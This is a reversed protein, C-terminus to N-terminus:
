RTSKRDRQRIYKRVYMSRTLTLVTTAELSNRFSIGSVLTCIPNTNEAKAYGYRSKWTIPPHTASLNPGRLASVTHPMMQAPAVTAVPRTCPMTLRNTARTMRPKPAPAVKGVAVRAMDYQVGLSFRPKACPMVCAKERRPLESVGHSTANSMRAYEQRAENMMTPITLM